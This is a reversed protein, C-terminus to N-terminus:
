SCFPSMGRSFASELILLATDPADEVAYMLFDIADRWLSFGDNGFQVTIFHSHELISFVISVLDPQSAYLSKTANVAM